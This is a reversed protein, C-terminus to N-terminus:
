PSTARVSRKGTSISASRACIPWLPASAYGYQGCGAGAADSRLQSYPPLVFREARFMVVLSVMLCFFGVLGAVNGVAAVDDSNSDRGLPALLSAAALASFFPTWVVLFLAAVPGVGQKSGPLVAPIPPPDQGATDPGAPVPLPGGPGPVLGAARSALVWGGACLVALGLPVLVSWRPAAEGWFVIVAACALGLSVYAGAGLGSALGTARTRTGPRSMM